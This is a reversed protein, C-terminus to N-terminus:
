LGRLLRICRQFTMEDFDKSLRLIAGRYEVEIGTANKSTELLEIFPAPPSLKKNKATTKNKLKKCWYLFVNYRINNKQCWAMGSLDSARWGELKIKWDERLKISM